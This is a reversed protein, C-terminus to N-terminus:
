IVVKIQPFSFLRATNIEPRSDNTKKLRQRFRYKASNSGLTKNM